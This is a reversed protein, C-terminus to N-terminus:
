AGGLRTFEAPLPAEFTLRQGAWSFELRWAHLMMRSVGYNELVKANLADRGYRADGVIPIQHFAAHKRIQHQRGTEITFQLDWFFETAKLIKALTVAPVRDRPNGLPNQRGEARDTLADKLTFTDSTAGQRARWAAGDRPSKVIARYVKQAALDAHLAETMPEVASPEFVAIVLGSTERDLRNVFHLKPFDARVSELLSPKENHVSMGAPKDFVVFDKTQTLVLTM